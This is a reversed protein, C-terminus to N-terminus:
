LSAMWISVFQPHPNSSELLLVSDPNIQGLLSLPMDRCPRASSEGKTWCFTRSFDSAGGNSFVVTEAFVAARRLSFGPQHALKMADGPTGSTIWIDGHSQYLARGDRLSVAVEVGQAIPFTGDVGGDTAWLSGWESAQWPSGINGARDLVFAREGSELIRIGNEAGDDAEVQAWVQQPGVQGISPMSAGAALTAWFCIARTMVKSNRGYRGTM